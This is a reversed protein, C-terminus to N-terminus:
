VLRLESTYNKQRPGSDAGEVKGDARPGHDPAGEELWIKSYNQLYKLFM